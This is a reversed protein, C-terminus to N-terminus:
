LWTHPVLGKFEVCYSRCIKHTQLWGPRWLLNWSLLAVYHSWTRFLSVSLFLITKLFINDTCSTVDGHIGLFTVSVMWSLASSMWHRLHQGM